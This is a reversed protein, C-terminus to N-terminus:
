GSWGCDFQNDDGLKFQNRIGYIICWLNHIMINLEYIM